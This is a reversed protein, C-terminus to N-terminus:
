FMVAGVERMLEDTAAECETIVIVGNRMAGAYDPYRALLKGHMHAMPKDIM